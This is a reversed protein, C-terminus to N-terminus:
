SSLNFHTNFLTPQTVKAPAGLWLALLLSLTAIHCLQLTIYLTFHTLFTVCLVPLAQLPKHTTNPVGYLTQHQMKGAGIALWERNAGLGRGAWYNCALYPLRCPIPCAATRAARPAHPCAPPSLPAVARTHRAVSTRQRTCPDVWGLWPPQWLHASSGLSLSSRDCQARRCGYRVAPLSDPILERSLSPPTFLNLGPAWTLNCLSHPSGFDTMACPKVRGLCHELDGLMRGPPPALGRVPWPPWPLSPPLLPCHTIDHRARARM